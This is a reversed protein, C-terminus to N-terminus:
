IGSGGSARGASAKLEAHREGEDDGFKKPGFGFVTVGLVGEDTRRQRSQKGACGAVMPRRNRVFGREAIGCPEGITIPRDLRIAAPVTDDILADLSDYGLTALMKAQEATSPGIHRDIFSGPDFLDAIAGTVPATRGAFDTAAM